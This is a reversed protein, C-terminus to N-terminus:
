WHPGYSGQFLSGDLRPFKWAAPLGASFCPRKDLSVPLESILLLNPTLCSPPCHEPLWLLTQVAQWVSPLIPLLCWLCLIPWPSLSRLHALNHPTRPHARPPSWHAAWTGANTHQRLFFASNILGSILTSLGRTTVGLPWKGPSKRRLHWM